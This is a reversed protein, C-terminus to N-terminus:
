RVIVVTGAANISLLVETDTTDIRYAWNSDAPFTWDTVSYDMIGDVVQVITYVGADMGPQKVIQLENIGAEMTLNGTVRLCDSAGEGGIAIALVSGGAINMGTSASSASVDVDLTATDSGTGVHPAIRAGSELSVLTTQSATPALTGSGALTAGSLVTM